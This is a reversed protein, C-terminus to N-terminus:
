LEANGILRNREKATLRDLRVFEEFAAEMEERSTFKQNLLNGSIAPSKGDSHKPNVDYLTGGLTLLQWSGTVSLVLLLPKGDFHKSKTSFGPIGHRFMVIGQIARRLEANVRERLKFREEGTTSGDKELFEKVSKDIISKAAKADDILALQDITASLESELKQKRDTM